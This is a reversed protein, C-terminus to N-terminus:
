KIKKSNQHKKYNILVKIIIITIIIILLILVILVIDFYNNTYCELDSGCGIFNNEIIEFNIIVINKNNYSDTSEVRFVYKGIKTIEEGSYIENNLTVNTKLDNNFNDIVSFEIKKGVLYKGGNKINNINIVPSTTDIINVNVIYEETKNNSNDIGYYKFYGNNGKALEKKWLNIPTEEEIYYRYIISPSTDINDSILYFKM